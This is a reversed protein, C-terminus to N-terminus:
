AEGVLRRLERLPRPKTLRPLHHLVEQFSTLGQAAKVVGDELLTVLGSSALSIRRIDHSARRALIADKVMDDLMLLEFVGIRGQYGTFRCLSCGRGRQGMAEKLDTPGYGLRRLETSTPIYPEACNLCVARILRQAVICRVTSSILSADVGMHLLRLVGGISDDAHCTAFVQRGTLAAQMATEAALRDRMEGLVIIDPDQQMIHRLTEDFTVNLRPNISCQAIGDLVYEVPEEATVICTHTANLANLCSYLTTTKGSGSPGSVLIVGSPTDLVDNRFRELIKTAMGLDALDLIQGQQSLLRLVIKEGYITVYFSVRMDITLGRQPDEYLIRGEQHRRKEAIDARALVKLRSSIPAALEKHFEKHPILIGDCRLRVRLRDKMPEIHVDSAQQQVAAAFLAHVLSMVTDDNVLATKPQSVGRSLLTLAEQIASKTAIAPVLEQGFISEAAERAHQDLPDAFAVIVQGDQRAIPIFLHEAYSKGPGQMLLDQDLEAFHPEVYAFGLQFALVEALRRAEIFHGEVLIEGLKKRSQTSKQIEIAAELDAPRLYGLEVLLDGLRVSVHNARLMQRLQEASVFQLEQLVHLLTAPTALRSQVKRAYTLQETTLYGAKILLRALTKGTDPVDSITELSATAPQTPPAVAAQQQEGSVM